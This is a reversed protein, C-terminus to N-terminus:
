KGFEALLATNSVLRSRLEAIDKLDRGLGDYVQKTRTELSNYKDLILHLNQLVARSSAAADELISLKTLPLTILKLPGEELEELVIHLSLVEKSLGELSEPGCICTVYIDWAFRGLQAIEGVTFGPKM